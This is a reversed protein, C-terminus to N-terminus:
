SWSCSRIILIKTFTLNEIYTGTGVNIVDGNVVNSNNIAFQIDRWPNTPSGNNTNNGWTSVYWQSHYCVTCFLIIILTGLCRTFILRM